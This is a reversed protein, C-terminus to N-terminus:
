RLEPAPKTGRVRRHHILLGAYYATYYGFLLGLIASTLPSHQYGAYGGAAANSMAPWVVMFRYILRGLFLATLGLGIWPNPFYCDNSGDIEFRTLKLAVIGLLAGGVLGVGLGAALRPDLFGQCAVLVSLVSFIAVRTWMRKPRIPQRGFNRRTRAYLRWVILPAAVAPVILNPTM